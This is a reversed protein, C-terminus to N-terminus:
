EPNLAALILGVAQKTSIDDTNLVLSYFSVDNV